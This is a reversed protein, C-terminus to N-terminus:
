EEKASSVALCRTSATVVEELGEEASQSSHVAKKSDTMDEDENSAWKARRSEM